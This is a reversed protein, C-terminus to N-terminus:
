ERTIFEDLNLVVSAAIVWAAGEPTKPVADNAGTVEAIAETEQAFRATQHDLLANLREREEPSPSRAVSAAFLADIRESPSQTAVFARGALAQAAEFFTPDNLLNLAQLPTNSRERRTCARNVDPFDFNVLQGYPSTRQIFTYIARRYRNPGEDAVWKNDFGQETVSDPQPPRVSPGGMAPNLLGSSALAADRVQEAGLRLRNQRALLINGPDRETLEPRADSSQRYTSSMAITKILAKMSWGQRQFDLALWDLLDPHSPLAGRVGFDGATSVLGKGFLEQWIRNVTVRATLPHEPSVLWRALDLRDPSDSKLAPLADPTGPSVPDGPVRFDGRIFMHNPRTVRSARMSQARSVKPLAKKLEAIQKELEPVKLAVFREPNVLDGRAFFYDQLRFKEDKTRESIPTQVISCGELQGEGEGNGDGQGWILGLVEWQRDWRADPGGPNAAAWLMKAEWEAQLAELEAAVPALLAERKAVYDPWAAAMAEAENGLPADVNVEETNNFFSYLQFFEKQSVADYKHDHCQACEVTLGLWVTGISKTRDIVQLTRFEELDAGGERNSLTNRLFGTAIRQDVTSEPLLDGALQEITFQDFPLDRNFAGVVWERYRWATLRLFDSLYGDSDGYMALDLWWRGWKEGYHPSALLEDVLQEYAEPRNDLAFRDVVAPEPPLGTLDLYLRRVLTRREAEPSPQIGEAELRAVIHADIPGRIWSTLKAPSPATEVPPAYAWHGEWPAGLDIWQGILEIQVSTLNKGSDAPPMLDDDTATIHQFIASTARDAGSVERAGEETDLRLDAKRSVRDAGHCNFCNEALIPLIDRSYRIPDAHACLASAAVLIASTYNFVGM